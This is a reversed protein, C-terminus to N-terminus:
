SGPQKLQEAARKSLPHAPNEAVAKEWMQRAEVRREEAALAVGYFYFVQVRDLGPTEGANMRAILYAFDRLAFMRRNLFAPLNTSNVARVLRVRLNTSDIMVAKDLKGTGLSVYKMKNWPMWADRAQMTVASGYYAMAILNRSDLQALHELYGVSKEVAEKDGDGGRNHYYIGLQQLAQQDNPDTTLAAEYDKVQQESLQAFAPVALVVLWLIFFSIKM